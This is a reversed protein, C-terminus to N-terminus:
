SVFDTEETCFESYQDTSAAPISNEESCPISYSYGTDLADVVRM